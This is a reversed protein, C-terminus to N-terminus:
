NNLETIVLIKNSHRLAIYENVTSYKFIKQFALAAFSVVKYAKKIM